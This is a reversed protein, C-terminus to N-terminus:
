DCGEQREPHLHGESGEEGAPKVEQWCLQSLEGKKSGSIKTNNKEYMM